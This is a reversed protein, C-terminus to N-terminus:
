VGGAYMLSLFRVILYEVQFSTMKPYRFDKHDLTM